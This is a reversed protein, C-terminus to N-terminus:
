SNRWLCTQFIQMPSAAENTQAMLKRLLYVDNKKIWNRFVEASANGKSLVLEILQGTQQKVTTCNRIIGYEKQSIVNEELLHDMLSQVSKLHQSMALHHKKLFTFGDSAMEEALLEREEERKEDEASLLDSVLEQVTEDNEGSALIKSQVTQKVVPNNMMVADESRDEGPGLHVVPRDVFERSNSDGNTLLHHVSILDEQRKGMYEILCRLVVERRKEVSASSDQIHLEFVGPLLLAQTDRLLACFRHLALRVALLELCNVHWLRQPGTWSGAAAHGNCMAGWGTTSADFKKPVIFYPSYFGSKMEAPPVTEIAGKALLTAVEARMVPANGGVMTFRVGRFRPPSWAFLPTVHVVSTGDTTCRPPIVPGPTPSMSARHPPVTILGTNWPPMSQCPDSLLPPRSHCPEHAARVTMWLRKPSPPLPM